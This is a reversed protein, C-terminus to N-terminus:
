RKKRTFIITPEAFSLTAAFKVYGVKEAVRLSAVNREGIICATIPAKVNRDGWEVVARLAETAYGKGHAAAVFAWGAEPMDGLSPQMDRKFDAFGLEGIYSGTEREEVAWYGYGLLEWLGAYRLM